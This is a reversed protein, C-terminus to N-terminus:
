YSGSESEDMHKGKPKKRREQTRTTGRGQGAWRGSPFNYEDDLNSKAPMLVAWSEWHERISRFSFTEKLKNSIEKLKTTLTM